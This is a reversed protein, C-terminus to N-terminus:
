SQSLPFSSYVEEGIVQEKTLTLYFEMPFALSKEMPLFAM